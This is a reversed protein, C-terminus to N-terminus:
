RQSKVLDSSNNLENQKASTVVESSIPMGEPVNHLHFNTETPESEMVKILPNKCSNQATDVERTNLTKSTSNCNSDVSIAVKKSLNCNTELDQRLIQVLRVAKAVDSAVSNNIPMRDVKEEISLIQQCLKDISDKCVMVLIKQKKHPTSHECKSIDFSIGSDDNGNESRNVKKFEHENKWEASSLFCKKNEREIKSENTKRETKDDMFTSKVSTKVNKSVFEEQNFVMSELGIGSDVSCINSQVRNYSKQSRAFQEYNTLEDNDVRFLTTSCRGQHENQDIEADHIDGVDVENISSNEVEQEEQKVELMEVEDIMNVVMDKDKNIGYKTINPVTPYKVSTKSNHHPITYNLIKLNKWNKINKKRKNNAERLRYPSQSLTNGNDGFLQFIRRNKISSYMCEDVM